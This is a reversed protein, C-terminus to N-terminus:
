RTIVLCLRSTTPAMQSYAVVAVVVARSRAVVAVVVSSWTDRSDTEPKSM